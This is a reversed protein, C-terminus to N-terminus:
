NVVPLKIYPNDIYEDKFKLLETDNILENYRKFNYILVESMDLYMEHIKDLSMKSLELILKITKDFRDIDDYIDDYSEDIWKGFTKFGLDRLVKLTGKPGFIIFPHFTSVIKWLKDHFSIDYFSIYTHLSDILFYSDGFINPIHNDLNLTKVGHSLLIFEDDPYEPYIINVDEDTLNYKEYLKEKFGNPSSQTVGGGLISYHM